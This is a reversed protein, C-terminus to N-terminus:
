YSMNRLPLVSILVHTLQRHPPSPGCGHCFFSCRVCAVYIRSRQYVDYVDSETLKMCIVDTDVYSWAVVYGMVFGEFGDGDFNRAEIRDMSIWPVM